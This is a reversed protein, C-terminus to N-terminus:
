PFRANVADIKGDVQRPCRQEDAAAVRDKRATRSEAFCGTPIALHNTSFEQAPQRCCRQPRRLATRLAPLRPWNAPAWCASGSNTKAVYGRLGAQLKDVGAARAVAQERLVHARAECPAIIVIVSEWVEVDNILGRLNPEPRLSPGPFRRYWLLPFPVNVSTVSLARRSSCWKPM